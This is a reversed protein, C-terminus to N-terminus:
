GSKADGKIPSNNMMELFCRECVQARIIGGTWINESSCRACTGTGQTMASAGIKVRSPNRQEYHIAALMACDRIESPTFQLDHVTRELSDVLARIMPDNNYRYEITQM